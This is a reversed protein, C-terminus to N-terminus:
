FAVDLSYFDEELDRGALQAYEEPDDLVWQQDWEDAEEWEDDGFASSSSYGSESATDTMDDGDDTTLGPCDDGSENDDTDEGAVTPYCSFGDLRVWEEQERRRREIEEPPTREAENPLYDRFSGGYTIAIQDADIFEQLMVTTISEEQDANWRQVDGFDHFALQAAFASM